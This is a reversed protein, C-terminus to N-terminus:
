NKEILYYDSCLEVFEVVQRVEDINRFGINSM